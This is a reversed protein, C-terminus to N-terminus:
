DAGGDDGAIDTAGEDGAAVAVAEGAGVDPLVGDAVVDAAGLV